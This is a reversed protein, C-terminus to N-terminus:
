YLYFRVFSEKKETTFVQSAQKNILNDSLVFLFKQNSRKKLIKQAPINIQPIFGKKRKSEIYKKFKYGVRNRM